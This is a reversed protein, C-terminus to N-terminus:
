KGQATDCTRVGAQDGASVDPQRMEGSSGGHVDHAVQQPFDPYSKEWLM